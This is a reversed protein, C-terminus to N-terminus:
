EFGRAHQALQLKRGGDDIEGHGAFLLSEVAALVEGLHRALFAPLDLAHQVVVDHAAVAGGAVLLLISANDADEGFTDGRGRRFLFGFPQDRETVVVITSRPLKRAVRTHHGACIQWLVSRSPKRRLHNETVVAKQAAAIVDREVFSAKGSYAEGLIAFIEIM